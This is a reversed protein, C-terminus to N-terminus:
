LFVGDKDHEELNKTTAFKITNVGTVGAQM